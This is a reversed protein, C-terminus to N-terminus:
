SESPVLNFRRSANRELRQDALAEYYGIFNRFAHTRQYEVLPRAWELDPPCKTLTPITRAGPISGPVGATHFSHEAVSSRESSGSEWEGKEVLALRAM